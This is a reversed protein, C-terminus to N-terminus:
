ERMDRLYPPAYPSPPPKRVRGCPPNKPRSVLVTEQTGYTYIKGNQAAEYSSTFSGDENYMVATFGYLHSSINANGVESLFTVDFLTPTKVDLNGKTTEVYAENLTGDFSVNGDEARVTLSTPKMMQMMVKTDGVVEVNLSQLSNALAIPLELILSKALDGLREGSACPYINLVGDEVLYHLSKDADDTKDETAKIGDSNLSGTIVVTTGDWYLKVSHIDEETAIVGSEDLASYDDGNDYRVRKSCGSFLLMSGLLLSSALILAFIKKM